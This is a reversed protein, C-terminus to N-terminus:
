LINTIAFLQLLKLSITTEGVGSRNREGRWWLREDLKGGGVIYFFLCSSLGISSFSDFFSSHIFRPVVLRRPGSPSDPPVLLCFVLIPPCRSLTIFERSNSHIARVISCVKIFVCGFWKKQANWHMQESIWCSIHVVRTRPLPISTQENVM